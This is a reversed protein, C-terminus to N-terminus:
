KWLWYWSFDYQLLIEKLEESIDSKNLLDEWCEKKKNAYAIKADKWNQYLGLDYKQGEYGLIARWKKHAKTVGCTVNDCVLFGNINPPLILCTEPSYIKIELHNINAIVDKDIEFSNYIDKDKIWKVFNQFNLWEECVTIGKAGYNKYGYEKNNYCRNILGKWKFYYKNDTKYEGEGICAINCIKRLNYDQITGKRIDSWFVEKITGTKLFRIKFKQTNWKKEISINTIEELIEFQGCLLSNFIQGKQLKITNM